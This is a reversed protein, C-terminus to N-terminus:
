RCRDGPWDGLQRWQSHRRLSGDSRRRTTSLYLGDTGPRFVAGLALGVGSHLQAPSLPFSGLGVHHKPRPTLAGDLLPLNAGAPIGLTGVSRSYVRGARWDLVAARAVPM